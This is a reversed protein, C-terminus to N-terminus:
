DLLWSLEAESMLQTIPALENFRRFEVEKHSFSAFLHDCDMGRYSNLYERVKKSLM